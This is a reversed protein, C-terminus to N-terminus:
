KGKKSKPQGNISDFSKEIQELLQRRQPTFIMDEGEDLIRKREEEFEALVNQPVTKLVTFYKFLAQLNRAAKLTQAETDANVTLIVADQVLGDLTELLLQYGLNGPLSAIAERKELDSLM